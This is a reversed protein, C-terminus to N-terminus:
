RWDENECETCVYLVGDDEIRHPKSQQGCRTCTIIPKM